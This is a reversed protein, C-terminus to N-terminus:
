FIRDFDKGNFKYVGRDGMAFLLNGKKDEYINWIHQTNLASDIIFNKMMKGDYRWAGNDRDGFWINGQKDEQIAFVHMLTGAPSRAGFVPGKALGMKQSFNIISDGENLLLGIGNNGIWLREKSDELISRVHMYENKGDYNMVSDTIFRFRQGDYGFVGSYFSFWINGKKGKSFGTTGFNDAPMKGALYNPNKLRYVQQNNIRIIDDNDGTGFWIGTTPVTWTNEKIGPSLRIIEKGNFSCIGKNTGFWINGLEDEKIEKVQNGPLGNATTFYTFLKGDYRCVGEQDSGFWYNGKSDQLISRIGSKYKLTDTVHELIIENGANAVLNKKERKNKICAFNLNLFIVLFIIKSIQRMQNM